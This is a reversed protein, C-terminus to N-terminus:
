QVEIKIERSKTEEAKPLTVKLIGDKYEAKVKAGDVAQSLPIVRHFSGYTAERLLYHEGKKEREDKREGEISLADDTLNLSVNDKTVGPLEAEVIINNKNEYVEISPVWAGAPILDGIGMRWLSAFARDRDEHMRLFDRFPDWVALRRGSITKVPLM